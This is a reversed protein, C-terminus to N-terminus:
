HPFGSCGLDALLGTEDDEHVVLRPVSIVLIERCFGHFVVVVALLVLMTELALADNRHNSKGVICDEHAYEGGANVRVEPHTDIVDVILIDKLDVLELVVRLKVEELSKEFHIDIDNARRFDRSM